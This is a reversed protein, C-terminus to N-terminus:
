KDSYFKFVFDNVDNRFEDATQWIWKTFPVPYGSYSHSLLKYTHGNITSTRSEYKKNINIKDAFLKGNDNILKCEYISYTNDNDEITNYLSRQALENSMHVSLPKIELNNQDDQCNLVVIYILAKDVMNDFIEFYYCKDNDEFSLQKDILIKELKYKNCIITITGKTQDTM